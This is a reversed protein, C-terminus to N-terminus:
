RGGTELAVKISNKGDNKSTMNLLFISNKLNIHYIWGLQDINRYLFMTCDYTMYVLKFFVAIKLHYPHCILYNKRFCSQSRWFQAILFIHFLSLSEAISQIIIKSLIWIGKNFFVKGSFFQGWIKWLLHKFLKAGM